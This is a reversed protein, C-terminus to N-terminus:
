PTPDYAVFTFSTSDLTSAFNETIVQLDGGVSGTHAARDRPTATAIGVFQASDYNVGVLDIRFVGEQTIQVSGVNPTANLIRGDSLIHGAAVVKIPETAGVFDSSAKGDLLNSNAAAESRELFESASQGDVQDANLNEVEASSNVKMPDKGAEVQLDLATASANTSNNDIQLSPGAVSGALKSVANVANVKGLDFTAGIGTGALATTAVGLVLALMIALGVVTTTARAMWTLKRTTQALM